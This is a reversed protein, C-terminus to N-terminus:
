CFRLHKSLGKNEKPNNEHFLWLLETKLKLGPKWITTLPRKRDNSFKFNQRFSDVVIHFCSHLKQLSWYRGEFVTLSRTAPISELDIEAVMLSWSLSGICRGQRKMKAMHFLVVVALSGSLGDVVPLSYTQRWFYCNLLLSQFVM